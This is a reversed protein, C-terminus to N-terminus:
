YVIIMPGTNASHHALTQLAPGFEVCCRALAPAGPRVEEHLDYYSGNGLSSNRNVSYSIIKQSIVNGQCGILLSYAINKKPTPDIRLKVNM